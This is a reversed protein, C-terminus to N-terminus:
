RDDHRRWIAGRDSWRRRPRDGHGFVNLLLNGRKERTDVLDRGLDELKKEALGSGAFSIEFLKQACLGDGKVRENFADALITGFVESTGKAREGREVGSLRLGRTCPDEFGFAVGEKGQAAVGGVGPALEYQQVQIGPEFIRYDVWDPALEM